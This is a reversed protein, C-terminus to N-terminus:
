TEEIKQQIVQEFEVARYKSEEMRKLKTKLMENESKLQELTL